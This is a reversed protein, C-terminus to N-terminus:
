HKLSRLEDMGARRRLYFLRVSLAYGTVLQAVGGLTIFLGFLHGQVPVGSSVGALVFVMTAGVVLLQVGILVGLLTRRYLMCVLGMGGLAAAVMIM